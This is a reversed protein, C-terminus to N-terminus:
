FILGVGLTGYLTNLQVPQSTYSSSASKTFNFGKLGLGAEGYFTQTWFVKGHFNLNYTAGANVASTIAVPYLVLEIDLYKRYRLFPLYNFLDDFFKPMTRAWYGGFGLFTGGYSAVKINEFSLIPGYLEDRNWIGPVINYKIDFNFTSLNNVPITPKSSNGTQADLTGLAKFYRAAFGWRQHDFYYNNVGLNEAWYGGSLEGVPVAGASTSIIGSIRASAEWSYGRYFQYHAVWKEKPEESKSLSIHATNRVGKEPAAFVWVYKQRSKSVLVKREKSSLRAKKPNYGAIRPSSSYTGTGTRESIYIRESDHPLDEFRVIFTFPVNWTGVVRLLPASAPVSIQWIVKEGLGTASWFHNPPVELDTVAGLPKPGQGTFIFSPNANDKKDDSWVVDLMTLQLPKSHFEITAGKAFQILAKISETGSYNIIGRPGIDQDNILVTPKKVQPVETLHFGDATKQSTYYVSCIELSEDGSRSETLCFRFPEPSSLFAIKDSSSEESGFNSDAHAKHWSQEDDQSVKTQWLTANKENKILLTGSASLVSPWSFVLLSRSGSPKVQMFIADANYIVSGLDIKQGQSLDWKLQPSTLSIQNDDPAFLLPRVPEPFSKQTKLDLSSSNEARAIATAILLIFFSTTRLYDNNKFIKLM